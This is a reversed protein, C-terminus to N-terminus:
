DEDVEGAIAFRVLEAINRVGLKSMIRTKHVEVTRSSIGLAKGIEKAHLGRAVYELVERERPTLAALKDTESRRADSRKIRRDELAFATEIAALLQAHDFPKELFDVAQAQFAARATPVDGHATIVIFPVTSGRARLEAQLEVGSAGPLRLDALICGSWDQRYAALLAEADSYLAVRYGTLGLMLALSDRVAVDDDVIFVTLDAKPM